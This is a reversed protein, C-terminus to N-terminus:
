AIKKWLYKHTFGIGTNGSTEVDCCLYMGEFTTGTRHLWLDGIAGYDDETPASTEQYIETRRYAAANWNSVNESTIRDLVDKNQHSHASNKTSKVAETSAVAYELNSPTIAKYSNTKADIDAETASVTIIKGDGSKRIGYNDGGTNVTLFGNSSQYLGSGVKIVGYTDTGAIAYTPNMWFVSTGSIYLEMVTYRNIEFAEYVSSEYTDDPVVRRIAKSGLGNINVYVTQKTNNSYIGTYVKIIKGDLESYSAVDPITIHLVNNDSGVKSIDAIHVDNLTKYGEFEERGVEAVSINEIIVNEAEGIETVLSYKRALTTPGAAPLFDPYVGANTYAYLIEGEDPDKAIVGIERLTLIHSGATIKIEMVTTCDSRQTNSLIECTAGNVQNKLATLDFATEGDELYGDGCVVGVITLTKGIQLKNLLKHGKRTLRMGDFIAM